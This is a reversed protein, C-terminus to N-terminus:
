FVKLCMCLRYLANFLRRKQPSKHDKVKRKISTRIRSTQARNPPLTYVYNDGHTDFHGRGSGSSRGRPMRFQWIAKACIADILFAPLDCNHKSFLHCCGSQCNFFFSLVWFLFCFVSFRFYELFRFVLLLKYAFASISTKSESM